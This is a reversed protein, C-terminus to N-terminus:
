GGATENADIAAALAGPWAAARRADLSSSSQEARASDCDVGIRCDCTGEAQRIADATRSSLM